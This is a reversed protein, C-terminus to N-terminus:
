EGGGIVTISPAVDYNSTGSSFATSTFRMRVVGNEDIYPCGDAFEMTMDDTFLEDYGETELNYGYITVTDGSAGWESSDTCIMAYIESMKASSLNFEVEVDAEYMWGDADWDDPSGATYEYLTLSSADPYDAYPANDCRVMIAMNNEPIDQENIYDAEWSPIWAITYAENSEISYWYQNLFLQLVNALNEWEEEELGSEGYFINKMSTSYISSSGYSYLLDEIGYNGLSLNDEESFSATEGAALKGIMVTNSDTYVSVGYMDYITTNTVTGSIGTVSKRIETVLGDAEVDSTSDASLYTSCFTSNNTLGVRYGESTEKLVVKYDLLDTDSSGTGFLSDLFSYNHDTYDAEPEVASLNNGLTVNAGSAGPVLLGLYTTESSADTRSDYYIDTISASQVTTLRLDRSFLFVGGTVALSLVPVLIWMLGRRDLKKLILYLVPGSLLVFILLLVALLVLNPSKIEHMEDLISSLTWVGISTDYNIDYIRKASYGVAAEQLLLTAMENKANWGAVPEMGLNFATLVVQGQGVERRYALGSETFVDTMDEGADSLTVIGDEVTYDMSDSGGTLQLTGSTFGGVSATLFDSDFASLTQRYDSGCGLILIGGNRVWAEIAAIQDENLKSTDYSNIILYSLVGLSSEAEPMLEESLEATQSSGYYEDIELNRGDFYNLATYDDSLIGVLAKDSSSVQLTVTEEQLINGHLDEIQLLLSASSENYVSMTVTKETDASLMIDQEYATASSEYSVGPVIVRLLGEFDEGASTISVSLPLSVGSKYLGNIGATVEVTFQRDSASEEESADSEEAASMDSSLDAAADINTGSSTVAVTTTASAGGIINSGCASFTLSALLLPIMWLKNLFRKM